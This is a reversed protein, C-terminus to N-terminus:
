SGKQLFSELSRIFGQYVERVVLTAVFPFKSSDVYPKKDANESFPWNDKADASVLLTEFLAFGRYLDATLPDLGYEEGAMAPEDLRRLAQARTGLKAFERPNPVKFVFTEQDPQGERIHITIENPPVASPATTPTAPTTTTL